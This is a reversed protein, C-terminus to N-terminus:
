EALLQVIMERLASANSAGSGIKVMRVNGQRDILVAHPIGTVGYRQSLDSGAPKVITAHHLEHQSMFKDLVALETELTVDGSSKARVAKETETDWEYGYKQTVGVIELGQEHFEEHWEKLHPFTAICPGCWIAWFDLLVVKGKMAEASLEGGHAWAEIDLEPAPKGIMEKVLRAAAIRAEYSRLQVVTRQLLPDDKLESVDVAALTSELLQQAAEPEDRMIRSIRALRIRLFESMLVTSAPNAEVASVVVADLEAAFIPAADSESRTANAIRTQMLTGWALVPQEVAADAAMRAKMADCEAALLLEAGAFDEAVMMVQAKASILQAFPVIQTAAADADVHPNLAALSREIVEGAQEAQNNRPYLSRLMLTTSVLGRTVNEDGCHALQFQLLTEAHGIAGAIDGAMQLRNVLLSRMSQMQVSEADAAIADDLAKTAEEIPGTRLLTLLDPKEEEPKSEDTEKAGGEQAVTAPTDSKKESEDAELRLETLSCLGAVFVVALWFRVNM